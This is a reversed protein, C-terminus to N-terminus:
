FKAVFGTYFYRGRNDYIGSGGGVGTLGYPPFENGVNDIGFYANIKSTFDYAVRVDHYFVDPYKVIPAYDTNEPPLDNVGNYDEFTNLYMRDIWRMQYGLTLKGRKANVNVNVQDDPDGLESKFVNVFDPNAPNTYSENKLVHTWIANVDIRAFDFTRRYNIQTDIGRVKLKAFNATSQLLSGELIRFPEEGRPGGSAGARQFLNCFPNSLSPSDYCLNAIQQASGVSTIVDKVKIDYYDASISLGPIFRPQVYGGITISDSTEVQLDPNGGSVIELSSSYVYDYNAPRGAANCNAVRNASGNALNRASCPDGFGPAFNQGQASYLESLNPARVSRNYAGRFTIDRIPSWIGEAGYTKVTGAAGKYDSIRGSGKVTLEHALPLDKVLPFNLEAYAEKVKFSPADFSPIANYFAYGAQTLDDLDYKLTERRYEGGISFGVPGGQLEFLQSSDGSVYGLIDFQTIKGDARSDVTLYNQAEPSINGDGLPNLPVCAAIDAALQAPNGGRDTGAFRPDVQSRCVIQGSANRVTDVALLYRQRNINGTIVNKEKHEGYNASLEYSWDDNFDGRVGAVGRYTERKFDEDRIGLEVFNRRLAFRFSGEQVQQLARAQNALGAATTGFATGTNPNVGANIAALAQAAITARASASLYPNDLRVGERNVPGNAGTLVFSRDNFGAVQVGDGLTTGQSFFPGSQSGAADSRVYKAEFFPVIAPTIEYHGLLNFSYRKVDPSLALLKGERGSYGNGGIFSGNPGVGIRTGTVGTLTGDTNFQSVCTFAGGFAATGCPAAAGNRIAVLGGLSITTSRIDQFFTRDFGGAAGNVSGPPDNEVVVFADNQALPRVESAYFDGTHSFELAGTLNARGDFLNKGALLSVFQNDAVEYKNIGAQGRVQIGEYDRRLVFNVVGAIADSGYVASAGGTVVDVREILDSPITNIDVSVGNSLVDSGVHRRGNVLVLTRQSGLGRLDLLNLGRTGLFRTSNATSFTSRLQPLENLQDGVQVSGTQFLEEGRLTTVPAASELNPTRIRSGTVLIEDGTTEKADAITGGTDAPVQAPDQTTTQQTAPDQTTVPQTVTDQTTTPQAM